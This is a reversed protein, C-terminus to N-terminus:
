QLHWHYETSHIMSGSYSSTTRWGSDKRGPSAMSVTDLMAVAFPSRQLGHGIDEAISDGSGLLGRKVGKRRRGEKFSEVDRGVGGM